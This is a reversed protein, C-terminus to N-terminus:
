DYDVDLCADCARGARDRAAYESVDVVTRTFPSGCRECFLELGFKDMAAASETRVGAAMVHEGGLDRYRVVRGNDWLAAYVDVDWRHVIPGEEIPKGPELAIACSGPEDMAFSLRLGYPPAWWGSPGKGDPYFTAM